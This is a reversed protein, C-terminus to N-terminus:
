LLLYRAKSFPSAHKLINSLKREVKKAVKLINQLLKAIWQIFLSAVLINVFRTGM